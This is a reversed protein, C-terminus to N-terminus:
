GDETIGLVHRVLRRLEVRERLMIRRMLGMDDLAVKSLRAQELAAQFIDRLKREPELERLLREVEQGFPAAPYPLPGGLTTEHLDRLEQILDKLDM